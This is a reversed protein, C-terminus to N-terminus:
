FSLSGTNKYKTYVGLNTIIVILTFIFFTINNAAIINKTEATNDDHLVVSCQGAYPLTGVCDTPFDRYTKLYIKKSIWM